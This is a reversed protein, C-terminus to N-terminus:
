DNIHCKSSISHITIRVLEIAKDKSVDVFVETDEIFKDRSEDGLINKKEKSVFSSSEM